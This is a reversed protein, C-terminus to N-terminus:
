KCYAEVQLKNNRIKFMISGDQDTRYVKSDKLNDLVEKNPHGYRNNKGVSIISYKPNIKEVFEKSTSTKSGHHAVKLIDYNIIENERLFIKETESSADGMLLINIDNRKDIISMIMSSDNEEKLDYSYIDFSIDSYSFVYNYIKHYFIHKKELITILKKENENYSNSNFYVNEIKIKNVLSFSSGLHDMDGHTLFMKHIKNIGLSHIYKIINDSYDINNGGGTDILYINNKIAIVCADGENVDLFTIFRNDIIKNVNLYLTIIVISHILLSHFISTKFFYIYYLIILLIIPKRFVFYFLTFNSFFHNISEIFTIIFNFVSSLIPFFFVIIALPFIFYNILPVFIISLLISLFNFEFNYYISIPLSALNAITSVILLRKIFNGKIWKQKKIIALSIIFSYQFGIDQIYYPNLFLLFSCVIMLINIYRYKVRKLKLIQTIIYCISSRLVGILGNTLFIYIILFIFIIILRFVKKIKLKLLFKDLINIILTVQLSGITLLYYLGNFQYDNKVDNSFYATDGLIFTYLYECHPIKKIRNEISLKLRNLLNNNKKILEIESIKLEYYIGKSQLYRNYNFLNPITNNKIKSLNGKIYIIDGVDFPFFEYYSILKEKGNFIVTDKNQKRQVSNVKLIFINEDINYISSKKLVYVRFLALFIVVILIVFCIYKSRLIIKLGKM